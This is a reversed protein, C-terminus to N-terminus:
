DKLVRHLIAHSKIEKIGPIHIKYYRILYDLLTSRYRPPIIEPMNEPGILKAFYESVPMPITLESSIPQHKFVGEQLDFVSNEEDFNRKPSFGLYKTLQMLFCLHFGAIGNEMKDLSVISNYLFDFLSSNSEQERIVNYLVENLFLIVSSKRLDFPITQFPYNIKIEKLHQLDNNEKHYVVIEVLTLPQLLAPKVLSKKSRMGRIMYSQLGFQETYIKVILSTESYKVRHFVIGRTQHLM